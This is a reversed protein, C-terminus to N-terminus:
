HLRLPQGHRVQVPLNGAVEWWNEILAFGSEALYNFSTSSFMHWVNLM